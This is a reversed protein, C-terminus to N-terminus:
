ASFHGYTLIPVSGCCLVAYLAHCPSVEGAQFSLAGPDVQNLQCDLPGCPIWDPPAGPVSSCRAVRPLCLRQGDVSLHDQSFEVYLFSTDARRLLEAAGQLAQVDPALGSGLNFNGEPAPRSLVPFPLLPVAHTQSYNCLNHLLPGTRPWDMPNWLCLKLGSGPGELNPWASQSKSPARDTRFLQSHLNANGM